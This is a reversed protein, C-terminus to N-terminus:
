SFGREAGEGEGGLKETRGWSDGHHGHPFGSEPGVAAVPGLSLPLHVADPLEMLFTLPRCPNTGWARSGLSPEPLYLHPPAHFVM